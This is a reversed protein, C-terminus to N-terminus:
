RADNQIVEGFLSNSKIETVRVDVIQGIVDNDAVFNVVKHCTSHGTYGNPTRASRGEVLVKLTKNLYKKPLAEREISKQTEQLRLFRLTKDAPSVDDPM